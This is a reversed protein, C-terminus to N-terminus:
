SKMESVDDQHYTETFPNPMVLQKKIHIFTERQWPLLVVRKLVRVFIIIQLDNPAPLQSM